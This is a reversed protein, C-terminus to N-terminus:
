VLPTTPSRDSTITSYGGVAVCDGSAPCTCSVAALSSDAAASPNMAPTLSWTSGNWSAASASQGLALGVLLVWGVRWLLRM